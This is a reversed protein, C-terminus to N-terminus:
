SIALLSGENIWEYLRTVMLREESAASLFDVHSIGRQANAYCAPRSGSTQQLFM